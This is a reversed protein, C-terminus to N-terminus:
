LRDGELEHILERYSRTELQEAFLGLENALSLLEQRYVELKSEDETMIALEAFDGLGELRDLTIHFEGVFYISRQKNVELVQRYGMTHLMSRAKSANNINVAECRDAEPGKVIWLMIGSPNIERICVSKNEAALNHDPHDFYTDYEINDEHMVEPKMSTLAKIFAERCILRYKLEVEFRGEFHQNMDLGNGM